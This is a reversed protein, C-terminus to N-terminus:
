SRRQGQGIILAVLNSRRYEIVRVVIVSEDIEKM